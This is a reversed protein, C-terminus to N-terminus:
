RDRHRGHFAGRCTVPIWVGVRDISLSGVLKDAILPIFAPDFLEMEGLPDIDMAGLVGSCQGPLELPM